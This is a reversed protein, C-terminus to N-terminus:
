AGGVLPQMTAQWAEKLDDIPASMISEGEVGQIDLTQGTVSGILAFQSNQMISEFQDKHEPKITVIIRSPTESFLMIDNRFPTMGAPIPVKNLDISLGLNGAFASEALAVGLGGDSCDHCSKVLNQQIAQYLKRYRLIASQPEVRPVSVGSLQLEDFYETAGLEPKTNGLIYVLDGEHKVDMTISKRIDPLKGIVTFMMTPPVSVKTDGIRYDNRMSDKGSICPVRYTTTTDFLAKNARVLDGTYKIEDEKTYGMAWCFNDLGALYDPDAGVCVINRVAEDVANAAMAYSDIDSYRPCLGHSVAVGEWRDFLPKMVAADSPGDKKIGVFPKVISAGQVEHDYRRVIAEEKSCINLRGLM